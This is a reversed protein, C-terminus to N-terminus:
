PHTKQMGVIFTKEAPSLPIRHSLSFNLGTASNFAQLTPAPPPKCKSLKRLLEWYGDGIAKQWLEGLLKAYGVPGHLRRSNWEHRALEAKPGFLPEKKKGTVDGEAVVLDTLKGKNNKVVPASYKDLMARLRALLQVPNAVAFSVIEHRLEVLGKFFEARQPHELAVGRSKLRDGHFLDGLIEVADTSTKLIERFIDRINTEMNKRNDVHIRKTARLIDERVRQLLARLQVKGEGLPVTAQSQQM